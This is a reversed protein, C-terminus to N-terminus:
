WLRRRNRKRLSRKSKMLQQCRTQPVISALLLRLRPVETNLPQKSVKVALYVTYSPQHTPIERASHKSCKQKIHKQKSHKERKQIHSHAEVGHKIVVIEAQHQFLHAKTAENKGGVQNEMMDFEDRTGIIVDAQEAVLSYYVATEETNTWTYPRYDLEFAVAVDNKRALSVAKLVAERSPSQALATGSILLVRAEKIYDESIEEPTLYLDAVNERYM